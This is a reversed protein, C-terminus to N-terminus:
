DIQEYESLNNRESAGKFRYVAVFIM